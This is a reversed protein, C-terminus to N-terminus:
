ANVKVWEELDKSTITVERGHTASGATITFSGNMVLADNALHFLNVGGDPLAAYGAYHETLKTEIFDILLDSYSM